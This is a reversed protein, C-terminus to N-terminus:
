WRVVRETEYREALRRVVPYVVPTVTLDLLAAALAARGVFGWSFGSLDLLRLLAGSAGVAAISAGVALGAPVLV